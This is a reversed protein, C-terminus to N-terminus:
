LYNFIEELTSISNSSENKRDLHLVNMGISKPGNVDAFINDGVMLARSPNIKFKSAMMKYILPDPKKLGAECSFLVEDFYNDLELDFFPQKYPSALNSILGLKIEKNKLKRLVRKSESYLLASVREKEFEVEYSSLDLKIDPNIRKVFQGLNDFDETLAIRRARRLERPTKLQLECFLKAYPKTKTQLYILTSYLDFIVVSIDEM